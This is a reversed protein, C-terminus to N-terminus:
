APTRRIANDWSRTMSDTEYNRASQIMGESTTLSRLLSGSASRLSCKQEHMSAGRARVYGLGCDKVADNTREVGTRQNYMEELVSQKMQVDESDEEIHDEVRYEIDLPNDTNRPNYPAIPVVGAELLRDHWDPIDYASDGLMWMPTEVVLADRV